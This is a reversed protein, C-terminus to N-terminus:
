LVPLISYNWGMWLFMNVLPSVHGYIQMPETNAVTKRTPLQVLKAWTHAQEPM